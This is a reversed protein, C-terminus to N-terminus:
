FLFTLIYINKIFLQTKVWKLCTGQKLTGLLSLILFSRPLRFVTVWLWWDRSACMETLTRTGVLSFGWPAPRLRSASLSTISALKTELKLLQGASAPHSVLSDMWSKKKLAAITIWGLWIYDYVPIKLRLAHGRKENLWTSFLIGILFFIFLVARFRGMLTLM